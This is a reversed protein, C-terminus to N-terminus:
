GQARLTYATYTTLASQPHRVLLSSWLDNARTLLKGPAHGPEGFYEVCEEVAFGVSAFRGIQAFSPGRCWRYYAPFKGADGDRNRFPQLRLLIPESIQEPLVRNLVFPPWWLTPFFHMAIGDPRLLRHVNTHFRRPDRVHEALVRSCVLDYGAEQLGPVFEPSSVDALLKTYGDPAKDLEDQAVDVLLCELDHEALFDLGLAPRAGAGLECIRGGRLASARRTLRETFDNHAIGGPADGSAQAHVRISM